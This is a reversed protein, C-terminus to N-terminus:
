TRKQENAKKKMKKEGKLNQEVCGPLIRPAQPCITQPPNSKNRQFQELRKLPMRNKVQIGQAILLKLYYHIM